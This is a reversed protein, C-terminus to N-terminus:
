KDTVQAPDQAPRFCQAAPTAVPMDADGSGCQPTLVGMAPRIPCVPVRAKRADCDTATINLHNFHHRLSYGHNGIAQHYEDIEDADM